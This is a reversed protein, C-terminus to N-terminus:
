VKSLDELDIVLAQQKRNAVQLQLGYQESRVPELSMSVLWNSRIHAEENEMM